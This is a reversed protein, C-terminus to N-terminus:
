DFEVVEQIVPTGYVAGGTKVELNPLVHCKGSSHTHGCLVTMQKGPFDAMFKELVDGVAKCSFHPLWDDASIEGEHWCSEKFPPVHTLVIVHDFQELAGPLVDQFYTAAQDGLSNLVALRGIEGAKVFNQIKLYDNLLVKSSAYDGFRGDAWGDHGILCTDNRLQVVGSEPLWNLWNVSSCTDKVTKRVAEFSGGYYDHNGLVFYIPVQFLEELLQLHARLQTATSIDGTLFLGDLNQDALEQIFSIIDKQDLFELHIDTLWGYRM